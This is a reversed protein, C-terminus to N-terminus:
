YPSSLVAIMENKKIFNSIFQKENSGYAAEVLKNYEEEAVDKGNWTYTKTYVDKGEAFEYFDNRSGYNTMEVMGNKLRYTAESIGDVGAASAYIGKDDYCINGLSHSVKIEGKYLCIIHWDGTTSSADVLLEPINDNNLDTLNYLFNTDPYFNNIYNLYETKWKQSKKGSAEKLNQLCIKMDYASLDPYFSKAVSTDFMAASKKEYEDKTCVEFNWENKENEDYYLIGFALQSAVIEDPTHSSELGTFTLEYINEYCCEDDTHEVVKVKGSKEIYSIDGGGTVIERYINGDHYSFINYDEWGFGSDIVTALEPINDDNIYVMCFEIGDKFTDLYDIYAQIWEQPEVEEKAEATDQETKTTTGTEKDKSKNSVSIKNVTGCATLGCVMTGLLLGAMIRKRM